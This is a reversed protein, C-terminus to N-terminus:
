FGVVQPVLVFANNIIVFLYITIIICYFSIASGKVRTEAVLAVIIILLLTCAKVAVHLLPNAVIGAMAPNLEIGGLRIILETMSIDLLFLMGLMLPFGTFKRDIPLDGKRYGAFRFASDPDRTLAGM